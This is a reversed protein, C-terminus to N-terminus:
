GHQKKITENIFGSVNKVNLHKMIKRSEKNLYICIRAKQDSVVVAKEETHYPDFKKDKM